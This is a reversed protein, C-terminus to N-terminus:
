PTRIVGHEIRTLGLRKEGVLPHEVWREVGAPVVVHAGTVDRLEAVFDDVDDDFVARMVEGIVLMASHCIPPATALTSSGRSGEVSAIRAEREVDFPLLTVGSPKSASRWHARSRQDARAGM